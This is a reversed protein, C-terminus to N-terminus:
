ARRLEFWVRTGRGERAVGWRDALREVLFLGWGGESSRRRPRPEAVFGPGRDAVEVRVAPQSVRVLVDVRPAGTHRVANTILETVLLGLSELLPPDLDGRLGALTSRATVAAEPGSDLNLEVADEIPRVGGLLGTSGRRGRGASGKRPPSNLM